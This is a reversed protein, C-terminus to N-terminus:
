FPLPGEQFSSGRRTIREDRCGIWREFIAARIGLDGGDASLILRKEPYFSSEDLLVGLRRLSGHLGCGYCRFWGSRSRNFTIVCSPTKEGHVPCLIYLHHRGQRWGLFRGKAFQRSSTALLGSREIASLYGGPTVLFRPPMDPIPLYLQRPKAARRM